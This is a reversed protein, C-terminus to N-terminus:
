RAEKTIFTHIGRRMFKDSESDYSKRNRDAGVGSIAALWASLNLYKRPIDDKLGKRVAEQITLGKKKLWPNLKRMESRDLEAEINLSVKM